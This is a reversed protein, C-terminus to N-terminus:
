ITGGQGGQEEPKKVEEGAVPAAPQEGAPAQGAVPADAPSVQAATDTGTMPAAPAPPTNTPIAAVPEQGTTGAAPASGTDTGTTQDVVPPVQPKNPDNTPDM